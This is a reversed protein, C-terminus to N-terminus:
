TSRRWRTYSGGDKPHSEFTKPRPQGPAAMCIKLSDGALEYIGAQAKGKVGGHLNVYDIAAPDPM